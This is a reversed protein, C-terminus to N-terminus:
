YLLVRRWVFAPQVTYLPSGPRVTCHWLGDLSEVTVFCLRHNITYTIIDVIVKIVFSCRTRFLVYERARLTNITGMFTDIVTDIMIMTILNMVRHDGVVTIMAQLM